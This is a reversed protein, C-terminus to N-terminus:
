TTESQVDRVMGPRHLDFGPLEVATYGQAVISWLERFRNMDEDDAEVVPLTCLTSCSDMDCQILPLYQLFYNIWLLRSRMYYGM